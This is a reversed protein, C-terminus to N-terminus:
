RLKADVRDIRNFELSGALRQVAIREHPGDPEGPGERDLGAVM